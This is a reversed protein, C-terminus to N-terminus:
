LEGDEDELIIVDGRKSFDELKFKPNKDSPPPTSPIQYVSKPKKIDPLTSRNVDKDKPEM